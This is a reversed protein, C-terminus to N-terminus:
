IYQLVIKHYLNVPLVEHIILQQQAWNSTMAVRTPTPLRSRHLLILVDVLIPIDVLILVDVLIPIGVLILIDVLIPIGVLIQCDVLSSYAWYSHMPETPWRLIQTYLPMITCILKSGNIAKFTVGTVCTSSSTTLFPWSAHHAIVTCCKSSSCAAYLGSNTHDNVNM